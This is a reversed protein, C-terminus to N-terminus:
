NLKIKENVIGDRFVKACRKRVAKVLVELGGNACKWVGSRLLLLEGIPRINERCFNRRIKQLPENAILLRHLLKAHWKAHLAGHLVGCHPRQLSQTALNNLRVGKLITLVDDYPKTM